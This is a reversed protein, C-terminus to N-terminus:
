AIRESRTNPVQGEIPLDRVPFYVTYVEDRIDLLPVFRFGVPQNQTRYYGTNWWGHRRERDPILMTEPHNPDGNLTLEHDVLGALVLPGDMFAVADPRDPMPQVALAAPFIVRVTDNTWARHLEIRTGRREMNDLIEGNVIITPEASVWRPVRLSLTFETAATAKISIDHVYGTPRRAPIPANHIHQIANHGETTFLQGASLGQQTDQTIRISIANGAVTWESVSPLYQSVVIEGAGKQFVLAQDCASHAQMLSGHCCWFDETPSGWTKKSGPALPLFYSVMGTDANQQALIANLYNREWYDAYKDDGTWRYLFQALRMMNYVTCHEHPEHLRPSLVGAPQWVEGCSSGGTCYTCRQTVAADWFAEVIRRYRSDGTAEWARAAGLIEPIQTNAHKNTLVDDGALLRDFFRRRDYRDILEKHEQAGTIVYLAAWIELMGGTEFDLIDDFQDRDYQGSWRYFWSAFKTLVTLAENNHTVLYTDLLGMLLKHLTYQPAWVNEGIAIRQLYAEPFPGAWEGGNAKQCRALEAVVRTLKGALEPDVCQACIHAAASMWHGLIHGRLQCTISEWGWHWTEPGDLAKAGITTGFSGSYSWLGAEFLYPRLLNATQLSGVYARNLEFRNQFPSPLLKCRGAPLGDLQDSPM